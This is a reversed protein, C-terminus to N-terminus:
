ACRARKRRSCWTPSRANVPSRPRTTAGGTSPASARGRRPSRSRRCGRKCRGVRERAAQEPDKELCELILADLEPPIPLESRSSPPPPPTHVHDAMVKVAGPGEFVLKGTVLWYAVCGLSYIDVRHDTPQTGLVVEPAM